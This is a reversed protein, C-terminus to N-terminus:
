PLFRELPCQACRPGRPRCWAAGVRALLAHYEKYLRADEPLADMFFERLEDYGVDEPVLGHRRCIRATVADVVFSPYDLAYLLISDATEPGVGRVALLQERVGAMDGAALLAIDGGCAEVLYALFHRLRGAKIRFSGAPRILEALEGPSLGLLATAEFAGAEKLNAMARQANGWNTNQALIAGVAAEFATEAPFWRSPGLVDLMAHFMNLLLNQRKM